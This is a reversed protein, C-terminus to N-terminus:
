LLKLNWNWLGPRQKLEVGRPVIEEMTIFQSVGASRLEDIKSTLDLRWGPFIWVNGGRRSAWATEGMPSSFVSDLVLDESVTRSLALPWNGSVVMGLPIPSQQALAKFDDMGLEPSVIAGSFGQNRLWGLAETNALNCFPGAWLELDLAKGARARLLSYQWLVNVVFRRSGKALAAQIDSDLAAEEEPWVVPPLWWWTQSVVRSPCKHIDEGSLWIASQGAPKKPSTGRELTIYIAQAPKESARKLPRLSKGPDPSDDLPRITPSELTDLVDRLEKILLSVEKERRDVIFVPDGTQFGGGRGSKLVLRGRKPVSRTVRVMTHGKGDEYGIRLLDGRLLPERTVLSAEKGPTVRGAFLGSGTEMDKKLPVQPRQSLFNYHTGPRGMAYELFGLATKKQAPDHGHDRLLAYGRVTYFVYHPSKKRGEIKWTTVQPIDKLIKALVDVSLDMCSFFRQRTGGQEYIRRCPQVCRGRLGSRGGFWSSWYCRGSVGYCLAGHVFVELDLGEPVTRALAKIEDVTLERPLVVRSFGAQRIADFGSALAGNALTSLHLEGSFGCNRAIVAVAMDQVILAHPNVYRVLKRIMRRTKDLENEKILSNFAVYVAVGRSRALTTLRSLEEMSFNAAEMRASFLKLGCYVADAGAAIAALFSDVDGAPALILPRKDTM